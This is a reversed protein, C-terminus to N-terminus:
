CKKYFFFGGDSKSESSNQKPKTFLPNDMATDDFPTVINGFLDVNYPFLTFVLEVPVFVGVFLITGFWPFGYQAGFGGPKFFPRLGRFLMLLVFLLPFLPRGFTARDCLTRVGLNTLSRNGVCLVELVRKSSCFKTKADKKTQKNTASRTWKTTAM